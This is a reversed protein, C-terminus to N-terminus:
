FLEEIPKGSEIMSIPRGTGDKFSLDLPVGLVQFLTAMLDQPSIPTTKPVDAKASSQGIIQGMKLGGGSLVINGLQPWHDRGGSKADLWPTRGFEGAIVVLVDDDMGRDHLDELLVPIARDFAPALKHMEQEITGHGVSPNTGHSDWGGYWVTVYGVGAECLRRALLLNQGLGPGYRDRMRPSEKSLDFAAPAAGRLLEMAQGQFSDMGEMIGSRDIQRDIKDFTERLARRDIIRDGTIRPTM